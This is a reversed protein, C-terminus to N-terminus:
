NHPRVNRTRHFLVSCGRGVVQKSRGEGRNWRHRYSPSIAAFQQAPITLKISTMLIQSSGKPHPRPFLSALSIVDLPIRPRKDGLHWDQHLDPQTFVQLWRDSPQKWLQFACLGMGERDSTRKGYGWGKQASDTATQAPLPLCLLCIPINEEDHRECVLCFKGQENHIPRLVGNIQTWTIGLYNYAMSRVSCSSHRNYEAFRMNGWVQRSCRWRM